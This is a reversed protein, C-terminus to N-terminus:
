FVPCEARPPTMHIYDTPVHMDYREGMDVVM